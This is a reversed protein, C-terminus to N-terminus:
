IEERLFEMFLREAESEPEGSRRICGFEMTFDPIQISVVHNEKAWGPKMAIGVSYAGTGAIVKTRAHGSDVRILKSLDVFSVQSIRNFPSGRDKEIAYEVFPYDRLRQIDFVPDKLLPHDEALNINCPVDCLKRYILGREELERSMSPASLNNSITIALDAKRQNLLRMGEYQYERYMSLQYRGAAGEREEVARCLKVFADEVQPCNPNVIGFQLRSREDALAQIEDVERVINVCNRILAEGKKTFKVGSVGRELIEFGIENELNRVATSMNPRSMYFRKAAKSISGTEHIALIYQIQEIKM